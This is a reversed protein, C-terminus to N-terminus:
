RQEQYEKMIEAFVPLADKITQDSVCYSVRVYGTCGFSYGPVV